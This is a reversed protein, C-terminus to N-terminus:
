RHGELKCSEDQENRRKMVVMNQIEFKMTYWWGKLNQLWGWNSKTTHALTSCIRGVVRGGRYMFTPVNSSFINGLLLATSPLM